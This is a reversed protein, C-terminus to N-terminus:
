ALESERVHNAACRMWGPTDAKLNGDCRRGIASCRVHNQGASIIHHVHFDLPAKSVHLGLQPCSLELADCQRLPQFTPYAEDQRHRVRSGGPLGDRRV